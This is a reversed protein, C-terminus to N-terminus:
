GEWYINQGERRLFDYILEEHNLLHNILEALRFARVGNEESPEYIAVFTGAESDDELEVMLDPDHRRCYHYLFSGWGYGNMYADPNIAQMTNGISLVEDAEINLYVVSGSCSVFQKM